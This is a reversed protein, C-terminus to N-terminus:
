AELRFLRIANGGWILDRHAEPLDLEEFHSAITEISVWPHDSAFLLHDPDSSRYVYEMALKSPSVLDLYVSRYYESPPKRIHERGRRKVETQEDIRPMLFPLVGGCHPHVVKLGPHRDLVGGLILRLMAFSHDVMFGAMPIMSYEEIANAWTPVTPHIVLPVELKEVLRYISEFRSEDVPHGGLHSYLVIGRLGLSETARHLEKESEGLDQWPLVGLGAFRDPHQACLDAVYDNCIRAGRIGLEPELLEPGPINLSIVSMDIKAGDMDRLKQEPSYSTLRLDFTQAGDYSVRYGDSIRSTTIPGPNQLLLEAYDPPFIHSQCDVRLM